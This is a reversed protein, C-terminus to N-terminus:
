RAPPMTVTTTSVTPVTTIASTTPTASGGSFRPTHFDTWSDRYLVTDGESILFAAPSISYTVSDNTAVISGDSGRGAAMQLTAGDSLRVGRYQLGGDPDVCIVVLARATRGYAMLTQSASCRASSDVFGHEDTPPATPASHAQGAVAAGVLVGLAVSGFAASIVRARM